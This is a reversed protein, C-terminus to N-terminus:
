PRENEKWAGKKHQASSERDEGTWTGIQLPILICSRCHPINKSQNKREDGGLVAKQLLLIYTTHLEKFKGRFQGCNTIKTGIVVYFKKNLPKFRSIGSSSLHWLSLCRKWVKTTFFFGWWTEWHWKCLLHPKVTHLYVSAAYVIKTLMVHIVQAWWNVSTDSFKKKWLEAVHKGHIFKLKLRSTFM